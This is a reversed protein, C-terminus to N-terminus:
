GCARYWNAWWRRYSRDIAARGTEQQDRCTAGVVKLMILSDAFCMAIDYDQLTMPSSFLSLPLMYCSNKIDCPTLGPLSARELARNVRHRLDAADNIEKFFLCNDEVGPVGFTNPVSGVANVLFDYSLDFEHQKTIGQGVCHVIKKDPDIHQASAKLYTYGKDSVVRRVPEVISRDEVTGTAAGPLLPTYLFYNRPSVVVVEYPCSADLAKLFSIAGWGAGLM